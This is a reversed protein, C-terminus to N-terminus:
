AGGGRLYRSTEALIPRTKLASDKVVGYLARSARVNDELSAANASTRRAAEIAASDWATVFPVSALSARLKRECKELNRFAARDTLKSILSECRGVDALAASLAAQMRAVQREVQKKMKSSDFAELAGDLVGGVDVPSLEIEAKAQALTMHEMAQIYAGGETCNIVRRAGQLEAVTMELWRRYNDFQISTSVPQGEWGRVQVFYQTAKRSESIGGLEQVARKLEVSSNEFTGIGGSVNIRTDGDPASEIYYRDGSLALDQGVFLIPDCGLELALRLQTTAVSGGSNLLGGEGLAGFTASAVADLTTFMFYRQAELEFMRPHVVLDLLLAGVDDLLGGELQYRLDIPDSALVFDAKMGARKLPGVSRNGGIFVARGQLERLGEINKALSPGPSVIVAPKKAFKGRLASVSPREGLHRMNALSHRVWAEGKSAFTARNTAARQLTNAIERNLAPSVGGGPIRRLVIRHPPPDFLMLASWLESSTRVTHVRPDPLESSDEPLYVILRQLGRGVLDELTARGGGGALVVGDNDFNWSPDLEVSLPGAVAAEAASLPMM